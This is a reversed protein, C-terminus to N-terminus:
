PTRTVSAAHKTVTVTGDNGITFRQRVRAFVHGNGTSNTCRYRTPIIWQFSGASWPPPLTGQVTAATDGQMQGAANPALSNNWGMRRFNPTANHRLDAATRTAFYGSIRSAPGSDERVAIWGFNVNRPRVHVTLEMGAGAAGAPYVLENVRRLRIGAPAIVNMNLSCTESTSPNTATVTSTGAREPAAWNFRAQGNRARPWGTNATWNFVQGGATFGVTECVGIKKRTDPTRDPAHVATRSSIACSAEPTSGEETALAETESAEEATAEPAEKASSSVEPASGADNQGVGVQKQELLSWLTELYALFGRSHDRQKPFVPAQSFDHAFRTSGSTNSGTELEAVNSQHLQQLANNGMTRQFHLISSAKRSQGSYARRPKTTRASTTQQIAKPKQAFTRM